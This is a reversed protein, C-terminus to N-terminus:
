RGHAKGGARRKLEGILQAPTPLSSFALEGDVALAPLAIVGVEVAYDIEQVVDVDRWVLGPVAERAQAKLADAAESCRKCGATHFLEVKM